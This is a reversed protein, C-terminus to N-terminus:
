LTAQQPTVKKQSDTIMVETTILLGAIRAADRPATRVVKVADALQGKALKLLADIEKSM